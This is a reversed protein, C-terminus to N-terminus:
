SRSLIHYYDYNYKVSEQLLFLECKIQTDGGWHIKLNKYTKFKSKKVIQSIEKQSIDPSKKDIHLYIDNREDDLLKLLKKLLGYENHAMILYAHKGMNEGIGIKTKYFYM